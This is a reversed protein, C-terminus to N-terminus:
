AVRGIANLQQLTQDQYTILRANAEFARQGEMMQVMETVPEVGSNELSYQRVSTEAPLERIASPKDVTLVNSGLKRLRRADPVDVVGLRTGAGPGNEGQSVLGKESITIPLAPNLKIPEGESSLVPRGGSATVLVGDNNLLFRGDRTLLKEGPRDGGVTFFGRGDLAVDTANATKELSAPTLDIGGNTVLVGGGQDQLIPLRYQAMRPDEDVANARARMTALDRKFGATQANALNNSLVNQRAQQAQLGAASLYLGYIM